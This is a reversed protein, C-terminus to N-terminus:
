RRRRLLKNRDSSSRTGPWFPRRGGASCRVADRRNGPSPYTRCPHLSVM